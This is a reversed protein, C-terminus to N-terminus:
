TVTLTPVPNSGFFWLIPKCVSSCNCYNISRTMFFNFQTFEITVACTKCCREPDQVVVVDFRDSAITIYLYGNAIQINITSPAGSPNPVTTDIVSATGTAGGLPIDTFTYRFCDQIFTLPLALVISSMNNFCCIDTFTVTNSCLGLAFTLTGAVAGTAGLTGTSGTVNIGIKLKFCDPAAISTEANVCCQQNCQQKGCSNTSENDCSKIDSM